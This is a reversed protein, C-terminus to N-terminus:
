GVKRISVIQVNKKFENRCEIAAVLAAVTADEDNLDLPSVMREEPVESVEETKEKKGKKPKLKMYAILVLMYFIIAFIGSYQKIIGM